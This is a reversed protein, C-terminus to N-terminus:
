ARGGWFCRLTEVPSPLVELNLKIPADTTPEGIGGAYGTVASIQEPKRGLSKEADM